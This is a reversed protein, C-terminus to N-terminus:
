AKGKDEKGDVVVGTSKKMIVKLKKLIPEPKKSTLKGVANAVEPLYRDFIQKRRQQMEVRRKGSVHRQLRRGLEQLALKIEKIIIPYSSIAQKSESVFPVWVSAFHVLIVAPGTPMSRGSKQLGYRRWDTGLMAKTIACDGEQYLLPVRNTIRFLEVQSDLPLEGGYAVACEIQFPNGRYVEPPRTIAAYFEANFEKKLGKILLDEGLPSLCDLPPRMLKVKKVAKFIKETDTIELRKPSIKPDIGALKCIEKATGAGVRSFDNTLFSAITRSKTAKLMRRFIGLEVGHPHPTIEKPLPPLENAGRPFKLKGSPGDFVIDAFPNGIAVQKMYETIGRKSEVYRGEVETEIKLGHWLKGDEILRHSVIEPENKKVDIMLEYYSTKGNGTSSIINTTKGTTLQSYLIAGSGGIGQQGRSQRLRFFKSGYLLKGLTLPIQKDIMGPGNDKVTVRFRNVGNPKIEVWIRPLVRAEEAADLSNDVLEKVVTLLARTPNDYGLLHRNKEFFESVSIERQDKALDEATKGAVNKEDVMSMVEKSSAGAM